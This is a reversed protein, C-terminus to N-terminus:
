PEIIMEMDAVINDMTTPRIAAILMDRYRNPPFKVGKKMNAPRINGGMAIAIGNTMM